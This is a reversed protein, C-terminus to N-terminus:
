FQTRKICSEITFGGFIARPVQHKSLYSSAVILQDHWNSYYDNHFVPLAPSTLLTIYLTTVADLHTPVKIHVLRHSKDVWCSCVKLCFSSLNNRPPSKLSRAAKNMLCHVSLQKPPLPHLTKRFTFFSDSNQYFYIDACFSSLNNRTTIEVINSSQENPLSWRIQSPPPPPQLTKSFTFVILKFQTKKYFTLM